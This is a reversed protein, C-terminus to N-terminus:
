VEQREVTFTEMVCELARKAHKEEIYFTLETFTSNMEVININQLQLQESLVFILGNYTTYEEPFTVTLATIAQQQFIPTEQFLKKTEETYADAIIMTVERLGQSVSFYEGKPLLKQQLLACSRLSHETRHFSLIALHTQISVSKLNFQPPAVTFQQFKKSLRSLQMTITTVEVNKQTRVSLHPQLLKALQTLNMIGRSLGYLLFPNHSLLEYLEQSLSVM